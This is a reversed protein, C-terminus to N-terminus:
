AAAATRPRPTGQRPDANAERGPETAATERALGDDLEVLENDRLAELFRSLDAECTDAAVEYEATLTGVIEAASRGGDILGWIRSGVADLGFYVGTSLNLLVLEGALDRFVVDKRIRTRAERGPM